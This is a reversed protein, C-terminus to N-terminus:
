HVPDNAKGAARVDKRCGRIPAAPLGFISNRPSHYLRDNKLGLLYGAEDVDGLCFDDDEDIERSQGDACPFPKGVNPGCFPCFLWLGAELEKM